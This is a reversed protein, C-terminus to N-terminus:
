RLSYIYITPTIWKKIKRYEYHFQRTKYYPNDIIYKNGKADTVEIQLPYGEDEIPAYEEVEIQIPEGLKTDVSVINYNRLTRLMATIHSANSQKLYDSNVNDKYLAKRIDAVSSRPNARLYEIVEDLKETTGKADRVAVFMDEYRTTKM